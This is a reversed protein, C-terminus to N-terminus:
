PGGETRCQRPRPPLRPSCSDTGERGLVSSHSVRRLSPWPGQPTRPAQALSSTGTVQQMIGPTSGTRSVPLATRCADRGRRAALVQLPNERGGQRAPVEGDGGLSPPGPSQRSRTRHAGLGRTAPRPLGDVDTDRFGPGLSGHRVCGRGAGSLGRSGPGRPAPHNMAPCLGRGRTAGETPGGAQERRAARWRRGTLGRGRTLSRPVSSSGRQRGFCGASGESPGQRRRAAQPPPGVEEPSKRTTKRLLGCFRIGWM